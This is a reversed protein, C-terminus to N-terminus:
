ISRPSYPIKAEIDDPHSYMPYPKVEIVSYFAWDAIQTHQNPWDKILTHITHVAHIAHICYFDCLILMQRAFLRYFDLSKSVPPLTYSVNHGMTAAIASKPHM